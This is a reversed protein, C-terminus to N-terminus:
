FKSVCLLKKSSSSKKHLNPSPNFNKKSSEAALNRAKNAM